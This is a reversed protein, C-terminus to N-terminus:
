SPRTRRLEVVPDGRHLATLAEPLVVRLFERLDENACNGVRLWLVQPPPSLRTVLDIFDEDKTLIVEGPRRLAAFVDADDAELLGTDQAHSAEVGFGAHLWACLSPPLQVDVWLKV